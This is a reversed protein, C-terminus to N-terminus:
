ITKFPSLRAVEIESNGIFPPIAPMAKSAFSVVGLEKEHFSKDIFKLENHKSDFDNLYDRFTKNM